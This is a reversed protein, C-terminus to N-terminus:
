RAEALAALAAAFTDVKIFCPLDSEKSTTSGFSPSPPLTSSLLLPLARHLQLLLVAHSTEVQPWLYSDPWLSRLSLEDLRCGGLQM